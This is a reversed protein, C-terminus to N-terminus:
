EPLPIKCEPHASAFKRLWKADDDWFVTGDVLVVNVGRGRHNALRRDYVLPYKDISATAPYTSFDPHLYDERNANLTNSAVMPCVLSRSIRHSTWIDQWNRPLSHYDQRYASISHWLSRLMRHCGGDRYDPPRLCILVGGLAFAGGLIAIAIHQKTARNM